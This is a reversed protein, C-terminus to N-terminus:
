HGPGLLGEVQKEEHWYLSGGGAELRARLAMTARYDVSVDHGRWMAPDRGGDFLNSGYLSMDTAGMLELLLLLRTGTLLLDYRPLGILNLCTASNVPTPYSFLFSFDEVDLYEVMVEAVVCAPPVVALKDLLGRGELWHYSALSVHFPSLAWLVTAEDAVREFQHDVHRIGDVNYNCVFRPHGAWTTIKVGDDLAARRWSAMASIRIIEDHSDIENGCDNIRGNGVVAIKKGSFSKPTRYFESPLIVCPNSARDDSEILPRINLGFSRRYSSTGLTLMDFKGVWGNFEQRRM